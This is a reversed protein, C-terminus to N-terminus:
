RRVLGVIEEVLFLILIIVVHVLVIVTTIAALIPISFLILITKIIDISNM